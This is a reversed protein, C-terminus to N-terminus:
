HTRDKRANEITKDDGHYFHGSLFYILPRANEDTQWASIKQRLINQLMEVYITFIYRYRGAMEPQIAIVEEIGAAIADLINNTIYGIFLYQQNPNALLTHLNINM